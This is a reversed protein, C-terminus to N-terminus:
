FRGRLGLGIINSGQRWRILGFVGSRHHIRFFLHWGPIRHLAAEVEFMMYKLFRSPVPNRGSVEIPPRSFAYSLGSGFAASTDIYNDWPFNRYRLAALLNVEGHEQIGSHKGLNVEGELEFGSGLRSLKKGVGAVTIWSDRFDTKQRGLINLFTTKSWRGRYLSFVWRGNEEAGARLSLSLLFTILLVATKM